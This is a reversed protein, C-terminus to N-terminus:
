LDESGVHAADDDGGSMEALIDMKEAKTLTEPDPARYAYDGPKPGREACDEACGLCLVGSKWGDDCDWFRVRVPILPSYKSAPDTAGCIGCGNGYWPADSKKGYVKLGAGDPPLLHINNKRAM